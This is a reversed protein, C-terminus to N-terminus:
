KRRIEFLPSDRGESGAFIAKGDPSYCVSEGGKRKGIDVPEPEVKWINDLGATGEPLVYEYAQTYDCIIMSLGDPSIDGGTLFGNPVAPVSIEGVKEARQPAGVTFDPRVRYVGAPGSVRKTVVYIDGSKPDIMLTEADQIYDPYTFRIVSAEPATLASRRNSSANAASIRPEVIRYITHESRKAKNDGIDGVYIYCNGSSDKIAAIDEWDFNQANPIKWTGLSAGNANIAFIFADDGSDNHTWLVDAQCRSAALGSSESIEPNGINGVIKPSQYRQVSKREAPNSTVLGCAQFITPLSAAFIVFVSFKAITKKPM